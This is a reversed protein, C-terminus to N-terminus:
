RECWLNLKKVESTRKELVEADLPGTV